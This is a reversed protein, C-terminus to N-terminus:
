RKVKMYFVMGHFRPRQHLASGGGANSVTVTHSHAGQVDCSTGHDPQTAAAFVTSYTQIMGPQSSFTTRGGNHLVGDTTVWSTHCGTSHAHSGGSGTGVDVGHGHDPASNASAAHVHPPVNSTSITILDSGATGKPGPSGTPTQDGANAATKTRDAGLPFFKLFNPLVYNGGSNATMDFQGPTLTTGDCLAWTGDSPVLSEASTTARFAVVTKLPSSLLGVNTKMLHILGIFPPRNDWTTGSGASNITITHSHSGANFIHFNHSHNDNATTTTAGTGKYEDFLIGASAQIETAGNNSTMNLAAPAHVHDANTVITWNHNHTAWQTDTSGPHVHDPLHTVTISATHTGGTGGPGPAGTTDDTASGAAGFAKTRDAGILFKDRLNPLVLTYALSGSQNPVNHNGSTLSSGDCDSMGNPLTENQTDAYWMIIAGMPISQARATPRGSKVCWVVGTWQPRPDFPSSAANVGGSSATTITVTHAHSGDNPPTVNHNHAGQAGSSAMQCSVTVYTGGVKAWTTGSAYAFNSGNAPNHSHASHSSISTAHAHAGDTTTSATHNHVPIHRQRMRRQHSGGRGDPGPATLTTANGSVFTASNNAHVTYTPTGDGSQWAWYKVNSSSDTICLNRFRTTLNAFTTDYEHALIFGNIIKGVYSTLPIRRTYWQDLAFSRLDANPHSSLGNQDNPGITRMVTADSFVLDVAGCGGGSGPISASPWFVDYQFFDGSVVTYAQPYDLIQYNFANANTTISSIFNIWQGPDGVAGSRDAGILFMNLLNPLTYSSSGGNIGHQGASIVSGDAYILDSPLPHNAAQAWFPLVAKPPVVLHGM